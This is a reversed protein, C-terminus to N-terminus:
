EVDIGLIKIIDRKEKSLDKILAYPLNIERKPLPPTLSIFKSILSVSNKMSLLEGQLRDFEGYGFKDQGIITIADVLRPIAEVDQAFCKGMFCLQEKTFPYGNLTAVELLSELSQVQIVQQKLQGDTEIKQFFDVVNEFKPQIQNLNLTKEANTNTKSATSVTGVTGATNTTSIKSAAGIAAVGIIGLYFIGKALITM